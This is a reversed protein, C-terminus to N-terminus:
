APFVLADSGPPVSAAEETPKEYPMDGAIKKLWGTL